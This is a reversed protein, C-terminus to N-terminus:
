GIRAGFQGRAEGDAEKGVKGWRSTSRTRTGTSSEGRDTVETRDIETGEDELRREMKEIMERKFEEMREKMEDWKKDWIVERKGQEERLLRELEEIKNELNVKVEQLEKKVEKMIEEKLTEQRDEGRKGGELKFTVRKERVNDEAVLKSQRGESKFKGVKGAPAGGGSPSGLSEGRRGAM